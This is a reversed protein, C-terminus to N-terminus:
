RHGCHEYWAEALETHHEVIIDEITRLEHGAFGHNFAVEVPELWFKAEQRDRRVHVHMPENCDFSVFHFRYPGERLATPM